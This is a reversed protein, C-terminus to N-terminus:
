RRPDILIKAHREPDGLDNFAQAVGDLGVTATHLPSPDVKGSAIMGLTQSFEAPDYGFVFRLDIEKSLAVAPRFKDVETCMGVVAVLTRLPADAVIHDIIGPVGACEFVVPGSPSRGLREAGFFIKELSAFPIRRVARTMTLAFALLEPTSNVPDKLTLADWPSRVRPDVVVDAGCRAALERRGPSPDSAIVTTVGTAKLMLIVALGIPGCGIVVAPRKKSIGSRRVAHRAVTLPETFAAKDPSVGDPVPFTLAEEVLTYEAYGGAAHIDFGTLHMGAETHLIPLATVTTGAPWRGRTQPGYSVVEGIFEHGLVVQQEPRIATTYGSELMLANLEAADKTAHLDSGCIGTRLVKILIQGAGPEPRDVEQVTLEGQTCVVAKM